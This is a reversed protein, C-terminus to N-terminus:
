IKWWGKCPIALSIDKVTSIDKTTLIALDSFSKWGKQNILTKVIKV